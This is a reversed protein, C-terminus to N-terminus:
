VSDSLDCMTKENMGYVPEEVAMLPKIMKAKDLPKKYKRYTM